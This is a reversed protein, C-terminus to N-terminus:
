DYYHQLDIGGKVGPVMKKIEEKTYKKSLPTNTLDLDKGVQLNDPLSTIPINSLFLSGGVQLNDPLSTIPTNSLSLSGGVKLNDPLFTIKTDSLFLSGEVKLGDPLSTIPTNRLDLNGKGGSKIYQQIKKQTSILFNKQREEASRRPVLVKNERLIDLFKIM